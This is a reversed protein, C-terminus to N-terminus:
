VLGEDYLEQFCTKLYLSSFCSAHPMRILTEPVNEEVSLDKEKNKSSVLIKNKFIPEKKFVDLYAGALRKTRLARLLDSENIVNGRGVNIVVCQHPLKALFKADILNDFQAEGPLAAILWDAQKLSKFKLLPGKYVLRNGRYIGKRRLGFVKIGFLELRDGIARGIKGYGLIVATNGELTGIEEALRSRPWLPLHKFFGHAWALVFGLVTESMIKGHFGGFHIKVGKPGVSPVFEHGAAPTALVKLKPARAFWAPDFDWVIAHTAKPLAKLFAGKTKARIVRSGKPVLSKFARLAEADLRFCKEPWELRILYTNSM